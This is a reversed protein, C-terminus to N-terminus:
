SLFGPGAAIDRDAARRVGQVGGHTWVIEL